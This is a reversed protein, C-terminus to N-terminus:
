QWDFISERVEVSRPQALGATDSWEVRVVLLAEGPNSGVTLQITRRFLTNVITTGSPNSYTFKKDTNHYKLVPCTAGCATPANALTTDVYCNAGKCNILDVGAGELWDSNQLRNTDRAFRIFEVADQALFFATVQDKAVVAAILSKSAITLPGAIATTLLLVAVLTEILTFGQIRRKLKNIM